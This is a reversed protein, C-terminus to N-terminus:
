DKRQGELLGNVAGLLEEPPLPQVLYGDDGAAAGEVNKGFYTESATLHLVPIRATDPDAKIRRCVEFGDMDPLHVDLLVLDPKQKVLSLAETGNAAELVRFGAHRLLRGIAYRQAENDDVHLISHQGPGGRAKAQQLLDQLVKLFNAPGDIKACFADVLDTADEPLFVESSLMLLPVHAGRKKLEWAVQSGNMGPMLYDLIVADVPERAFLDLGQQPSSACLVRYDSKELIKARIFLSGEDDDICLITARPSM